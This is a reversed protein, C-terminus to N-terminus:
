IGSKGLEQFWTLWNDPAREIKVLATIVFVENAAEDVTANEHRVNFEIAREIAMLVEGSTTIQLLEIIARAHPTWPAESPLSTTPTVPEATSTRDNYSEAPARFNRNRTGLLNMAHSHRYVADHGVGYRRTIEAVSMERRLFAKEIALREPHSCIGCRAEHRAESVPGYTRRGKPRTESVDTTLTM